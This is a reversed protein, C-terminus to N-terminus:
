IKKVSFCYTGAPVEYVERDKKRGCYRVEDANEAKVACRDGNKVPVEIKGTCNFPITVKLEFADDAKKWDVSVKGSVTDM